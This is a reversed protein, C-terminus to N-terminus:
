KIKVIKIREAIQTEKIIFTNRAALWAETPTVEPNNLCIEYIGWYIEKVDKREKDNLPVQEFLQCFEGISLPKTPDIKEM